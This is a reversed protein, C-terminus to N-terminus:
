QRQDGALPAGHRLCAAGAGTEPVDTVRPFAEDLRAAGPERVGRVPQERTGDDQHRVGHVDGGAYATGGRKRTPKGAM